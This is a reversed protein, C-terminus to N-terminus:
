LVLMNHKKLLEYAERQSRCTKWFSAKGHVLHEFNNARAILRSPTMGFKGFRKCLDKIVRKDNIDGNMVHSCVVCDMYLDWKM